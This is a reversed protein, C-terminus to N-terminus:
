ILDGVVKVKILLANGPLYALPVDEINLVEITDEKAGAKLAKNVAEKKADEIADERSMKDL